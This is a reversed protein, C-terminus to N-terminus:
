AREVSRQCHDSVSAMGEEARIRRVLGDLAATICSVHTHHPMHGANDLMVLEAEPLASLLGECHISPWVVTDQTGSVILAPQSLSSYRESQATVAKKLQAIDRANAQFTDPRFLLPVKIEEIYDEPATDPFFVNGIAAPALREAIPMMLTWSFIKGIVPMSAVTYYWNVGGPWPHSVPALFVLGQVRAPAIMGLAAAVAGGLSHGVVIAERIELKELLGALLHAQGEPTDQGFSKRGSYGLGPRDVFLLPYKGKLVKLFALRTDYGNGSAGHLFVLAPVNGREKEASYFHYHLKVGDVVAFRGDPKFDRSIQRVRWFTYGVLLVPIVALLLLFISM